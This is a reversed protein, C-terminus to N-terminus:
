ALENEIETIARDLIEVAEDADQKTFILPPLFQTSSDRTRTILGAQMLKQKLRVTLAEDFPTKRQKDRVYEVACFLGIGRVDGVTPHHSLEQLRELLYRGVVASNEVLNEREIIDINALAAMCSAPHGGFSYIHKFATKKFPAAIETRVITASLPLYGSVIGKALSMIDPVVGFNECGFMKGTRGFGCVVCDMQLLLGYKDCISRIMPWYEPPPVDVLSQSSVPSSLFAAVTEPGERLIVREVERACKLDCDPYRLDYECRYCRPPAVHIVGPMFPGYAGYDECMLPNGSKLPRGMAMTGFSAGHYERRRCIVKYRNAYGSLKHYHRALKIGTEVADCGNNGFFVVSLDGPTIEALKKALKIQPISPSTGVSSSLTRLQEYAADVIEQRGYGVNVYMLSAFADLYTKGTIDVVHCGDTEKVFLRFSDPAYTTSRAVNPQFLHKEGWERYRELDEPKIDGRAAKM